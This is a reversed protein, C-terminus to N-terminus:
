TLTSARQPGCRSRAVSGHEDAASSVPSGTDGTEEMSSSDLWLGQATFYRGSNLWMAREMIYPVLELKGHLGLRGFRPKSLYSWQVGREPLAGPAITRATRIWGRNLLKMGLRGSHTDFPPGITWHGGARYVLQVRRYERKFIIFYSPPM